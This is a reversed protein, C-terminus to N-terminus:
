KETNRTILSEMNRSYDIATDIIHVGTSDLATEFIDKFEEPTRATHGTAGYSEAYLKFDPNGFKMGFESFGENAQKWRIMQFTHDNLIVIVLNLKLRVATELEQSNMMFGGDGVVAVVKKDPHILKAAIASPVGAGMTALENDLLLANGCHAEFHRAFYLKYMGNDLTVIGERPITRQVLDVLFQPTITVSSEVASQFDDDLQAKHVKHYETDWLQSTEIDDLAEKVQWIANAIDGIVEVQPYYIEGVSAPQFGIHVVTRDSDMIFPPKEVVDHGVNIILDAEEITRHVYDDSSLAATGAFEPMSEDIVGIGMQTTAFPIHYSEVLETLMASTRKRNAGAGIVLLPKKAATLLEVTRTISKIEAVPRRIEPIPLLHTQIKESAVDEPIEILSAGPREESALRFAERVFSPAQRGEVLTKSYKTVQSMMSVIDIIQFSGQTSEHIPKQGTIMVLPLAGLQAYAAATMLNIAGPGLTSLAVGPSGTLRGVTAGMFGAAQEHRTAIFEISSDKIADMIALNEEGPVGFIYEVGENELAKIFVHATSQTIVNM